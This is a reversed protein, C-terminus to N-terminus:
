GQDPAPGGIPACDGAPPANAQALYIAVLLADMPGIGGSCNVDDQYTDCPAAQGIGIKMLVAIDVIDVVGSCNADGQLLTDPAPTNTPGPPPSTLPTPTPTQSPTPSPAPAPTAGGPPDGLVLEGTGYVNDAGAVGRDVTSNKLYSALGAPSDALGASLALAAAGSVAPTAASTGNFCKPAYTFSSVCSAASLDPKIRGDNTPGWSSYTAATIGNAPDIAGVSLMGPNASDSMPGGASYPNQSYYFPTGNGMLELVDGATGNGVDALTIVLGDIDGPGSCSDAEQQATLELPPAGLTQFDVGSVKPSLSDEDDFIYVDYDTRNAGWDNWRLGNLFGCYMPLVENDGDFNLFGDDDPDNWAGRWYSGNGAGGESANNGAANDWLMGDAVANNVVAAIPGTGDGPGDFPATESRSIIQVGHAHFYDVIAQLDSATYGTAIYLQAGPAMEHIVEAVGQGHAVHATWPDCPSGLYLCFAGSPAPLEGAAQAAEWADGDFMDIIGIRVGQGTYGADHWADANTKAVEQGVVDADQAFVDGAPGSPEGGIPISVNEPPRVYDIGPTQELDILRGVPVVAQVLAGPVEGTVRGGVAAVAARAAQSTTHHLVEVHVSAGDLNLMTPGAIGAESEHVLQRLQASALPVDPFNSTSLAQDKAEGVFQALKQSVAPAPDPEPQRASSNAPSALIGAFLVLAALSAIIRNM